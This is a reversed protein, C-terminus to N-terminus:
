DFRRTSGGHEQSSLAIAWLEVRPYRSHHERLIICFLATNVIFACNVTDNDM